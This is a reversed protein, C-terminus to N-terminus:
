VEKTFADIELVRPKIKIGLEKARGTFCKYQRDTIFDEREFERYFHFDVKTMAYRAWDRMSKSENFLYRVDPDRMYAADFSNNHDYLPHCGLIEMTECNYFFGWNMGHRDPNAILYDVIMMKYISEADITMIEEMPEKEEHICYSVFDMGPLIAITDDTMCKCKCTYGDFVNDAEYHLHNVNCNDLLNSVMVEIKSETIGRNGTKHLYLGDEEKLWAKAYAGQGSLEPCRLAEEAKNQISLSSGRLSVQAVAENLHVKHLDVQNWTTKDGVLKLWYNDLLSLARCVLAVRARSYEDQLQAFGFLNYIKKANERSLPLVRGALWSIIRDKNKNVAIQRQVDDYHSKIESFDPVKRMRGKLQFPLLDERIVRYESTDFNFEMVPTDKMMLMTNIPINEQM